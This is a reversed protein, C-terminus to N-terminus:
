VQGMLKSKLGLGQVPKNQQRNCCSFIPSFITFCAAIQGGEMNISTDIVQAHQLILGVESFQQNYKKCIPFWIFYGKYVWNSQGNWIWNPRGISNWNSYGIWDWISQGSWDYNSHQM